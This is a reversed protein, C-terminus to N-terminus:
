ATPRRILRTRPFAHVDLAPRQRGLAHPRHEVPDRGHVVRHVPHHRCPEVPAPATLGGPGNDLGAVLHEVGTAAGAVERDRSGCGSPLHGPDVEGLRHQLASAALSGLELPDFAIRERASALSDEFMRQIQKKMKGEAEARKKPDNRAEPPMTREFEMLLMKNFVAQDIVHKTLPDRYAAEMAQREAPHAKTTLYDEFM